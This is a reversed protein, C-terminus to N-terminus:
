NTIIKIVGPKSGAGLMHKYRYAVWYMHIAVVDTDALPDYGVRVSPTQQYWLALANRKVIISTYKPPTDTSKSMKDSTKVQCGVAQLVKGGNPDTFIPAGVTTKAKLLDGYVKSHVGLLAIDDQEDGWLIRGDAIQDYGLKVPTGSNYVDSIYDSSLSAFAATILGQDARRAMLEVFQRAAEAYPDAYQAALEAWKTLEIAKGSHIVTATESTQSLTEPTLADGEAVDEAEGMATFYPVTVTTGGKVNGPLTNSVVAAGSGSLLNVKAFEAQVADALLQPIVLDSTKTTGM